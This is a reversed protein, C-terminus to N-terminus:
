TCPSYSHFVTTYQVLSFTIIAGVATGVQTLIGCRYLAPQGGERRLVSAICTKIYAVIGSVMVWALVVLSGGLASDVFPPTPSLLAITMIYAGWIFVYVTLGSIAAVSSIPLFMAVFCCLPNAFSSLTVTLHFALSGYPLCSYTQISLLIGNHLACVLGQLLLLIIYQSKSFRPKGLLNKELSTTKELSSSFEMSNHLSEDLAPHKSSSFPITPVMERKAVPLKNLLVFAIWSVGMQGCLILFFVNASFRPPPYYAEVVYEVVKSHERVNIVSINRCEAYGGVGQALAIVGPIPGSLGAGVMYSAIYQERFNAIFPLYLLSSTCDVFALFFTLTLLATSHMEGALYTTSEWFISLLVCATIVIVLSVHIMPVELVKQSWKRRAASFLIPGLNAIQTTIVIYASLKWAEPLANVLVPLEVWLGNVAVWSSVGFLIILIDVSVSRISVKPKAGMPSVQISVFPSNM